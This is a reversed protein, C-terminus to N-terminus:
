CTYAVNRIKKGPYRINSPYVVEAVAFGEYEPFKRKLYRCFSEAYYPNLVTILVNRRINDYGLWRNEFIRHPDILELKKQKIGYVEAREETEDVRFFMIWGAPPFLFKFKPLECKFFPNLYAARLSEYHFLTLWAIVFLTISVNRIKPSVMAFFYHIGSWSRLLVPERHKIRFM